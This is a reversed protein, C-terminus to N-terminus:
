KTENVLTTARNQIKEATEEAPQGDALFADIEESLINSLEIYMTGQSQTVSDLLASIQDVTEQTAPAYGSGYFGRETNEMEDEGYIPNMSYDIMKSLTNKNSPFSTAVPKIYMGDQYDETLFSRIVGWCEDKHKSLSSIALYNFQNNLYSGCETGSLTPFGIYFISEGMSKELFQQEMFGMLSFIRLKVEGSGSEAADKCINLIDIFEQSDYKATKNEYDIFSYFTTCCLEDLVDDAGFVTDSYIDVTGINGAYEAFDETNWITRGQAVSEPAVLTKVTFGSMLGILKGDYESTKLACPVISDRSLGEDADLYPYLDEFVGKAAYSSVDFGFASLDILDPGEGVAIEKNLNILARSTDGDAAELYDVVQVTFPYDGENIEQIVRTDLRSYGEATALTLTVKGDAGEEGGGCGATSLLMAIALLVLASRDFWKKRGIRM